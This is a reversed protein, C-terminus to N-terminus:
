LWTWYTTFGSPLRPGGGAAAPSPEPAATSPTGPLGSGEKPRPRPRPPGAGSWCGSRAPARLRSRAAFGALRCRSPARAPAPAPGSSSRRRLHGPTLAPAAPTFSSAGGVCGPGLTFKGTQRLPPHPQPPPSGVGARLRLTQVPLRRPSPCLRARVRTCASGPVCKPCAFVRASLFPRAAPNARRHKSRCGRAARVGAPRSRPPRTISLQRPHSPLAPRDRLPHSM